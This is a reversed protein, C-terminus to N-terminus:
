AFGDNEQHCYVYFKCLIENTSMGQRVVLTNLSAIYIKQISILQRSLRLQAKINGHKPQM